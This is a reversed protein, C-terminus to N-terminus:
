FRDKRQDDDLDLEGDSEIHAEERKVNEVVKETSQVEKKGIVLEENVVPKKTVEVKEEVIPVRITEDDGVRGADARAGDVPRRDVYVEERSVPVDITEQEEVVDKHVEVEGTQVRDKQIDLQEERLEMTREGNPELTDGSFGARDDTGRFDVTENFSYEATDASGATNEFLIIRGSELDGAYERAESETLGLGVLNDYNSTEGTHDSGEFASALSEFFGRDKTKGEALPEETIGTLNGLRSMAGGTNGYVSLNSLTHGENQYREVAEILEEESHYVGVVRKGM